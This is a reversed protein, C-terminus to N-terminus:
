PIILLRYNKGGRGSQMRQYFYMMNLTKSQQFIYKNKRHSKVFAMTDTTELGDSQKTELCTHLM